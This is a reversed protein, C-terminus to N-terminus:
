ESDSGDRQTSTFSINIPPYRKPAPLDESVEVGDIGQLAEYVAAYQKDQENGQTEVRAALRAMAAANRSQDQALETVTENVTELAATNATLQEDTATKQELVRGLRVALALITILSAVAGIVTAAQAFSVM